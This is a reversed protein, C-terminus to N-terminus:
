HSPFPSVATREPAWYISALSVVPPLAFCWMGLSVYCLAAMVCGLTFFALAPVMKYLRGIATHRAEGQVGKLLDAIDIMVQTTTGTMLTTPPLSGTHIRQMANQMAMAAVMCMGAVFAAPIDGNAFPGSQVMLFGALALLLAKVAILMRQTPLRRAQLANSAWRTLLVGICFVPLAALKSYAGATGHVLSAGLTVFNGTVHATFLGGLALFGATDVYGANFSLLKSFHPLVAPPSSSSTDAM